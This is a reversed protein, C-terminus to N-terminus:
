SKRQNGHERKQIKTAPFSFIKPHSLNRAQQNCNKSVTQQVWTALQSRVTIRQVFPLLTRLKRGMLLRQNQHSQRFWQELCHMQSSKTKGKSVSPKIIMDKSDLFFDKFGPQAITSINTNYPKWPSIM